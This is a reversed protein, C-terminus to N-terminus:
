ISVDLASTAEDAIIVKPELALARAIGIRQRQGGSFAHPYREIATADLGVQELLKRVREDLDRGNALGNVVLPEGVVQKVTIRPNLSSFPGQFILRLARHYAALEAKSKAMM